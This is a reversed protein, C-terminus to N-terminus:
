LEAVRARGSARHAPEHHRRQKREDGAIGRDGEQEAIERVVRRSHEHGIAHHQPADHQDEGGGARDALAAVSKRTFVAAFNPSTATTASPNMTRGPPPPASLIASETSVMAKKAAM